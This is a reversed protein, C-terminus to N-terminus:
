IFTFLLFSFLGSCSGNTVFIGTNRTLNSSAKCESYFIQNNECSEFNSTGCFIHRNKNDTCGLLINREYHM